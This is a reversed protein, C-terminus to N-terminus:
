MKGERAGGDFDSHARLKLVSDNGVAILVMILAVALAKVLCECAM